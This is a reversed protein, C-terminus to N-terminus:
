TGGPVAKKKTEFEFLVSFRVTNELPHNQEFPILYAFDVGFFKYRFGMGATFFQRAGKNEHEYFLGARFALMKNYLYETGASVNIENIEERIGGPADTFSGAMGDILPKKMWENNTDNPNPTPVLLKNFDLLLMISNYRDLEVSLSPGLRMNVPIFNREGSNDYSIKSGINSINLGTAFICNLDSLLINRRYYVSLDAAVSKGPHTLVGGQALYINGFLNSYIYRMSIAGSLNENIKVAYAADAAFEYPHFKGTVTGTISTFVIEGLSFYRYSMGLTQNNKLRIFGSWYLFHIDNVLARLWPTYSFSFGIDKNIFAFKSPNYHMSFPDAVSAVGAEGLAGGCADPAPLLFPVATTVVNRQGAIQSQFLSNIQGQASLTFQCIIIVSIRYFKM